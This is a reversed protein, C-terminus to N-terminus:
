PGVARYFNKARNTAGIDIFNVAGDTNILTAVPSWDFLNTSAEVTYNYGAPASLRFVNLGNTVTETVHISFPKTFGVFGFTVNTVLIRSTVNMYTDLQFGLFHEGNIVDTPLNFTYHQLTPVAFREDLVGISNTDLSASLLGSAGPSSTFAADFAVFNVPNTVALDFLIWVPSGSVATFGAGSVAITGSSSRVQPMSSLNLPAGFMTPLASATPVCPQGGLVRPQANGVINALAGPWGNGEESAPFGFGDIAPDASNAITRQYFKIPWDHASCGAKSCQYAVPSTSDPLGPASVFVQQLCKEPDLWTVDVNYAHDLSSQTFPVPGYSFYNDAWNAAGGYEHQLLRAAGVYPDLFTNHVITAPSRAKLV